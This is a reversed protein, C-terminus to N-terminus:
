DGYGPNQGLLPNLLRQQGPIPILVQHPQIGLEEVARGTRVLDYFRFNETALERRREDMVADMFAEDTAPTPNIPALGRTERLENLRALGDIRGQAEASILYMEAVRSVIVPDKGTQGSPYKNFLVQGAVNTFTIAKRKDDDSFLEQLDKTPYYDGTGKNEHAYTYFLDSINIGSEESRNEFAFIIETNAEKRSIKEFDDLEYKGILSEALEVAETKKGRSLKVRAMLAVAADYSVYYYSKSTGLQRMALELEEEIFNWVQEAPDRPVNEQTNERLIPMDGWRTVMCYYLYARFYHSEGLALTAESSGPYKEAAKILNNIQYLIYFYGAWSTNQTGNLPSLMSIILDKATGSNGRINGGLIDFMIYSRAGPGGSQFGSYVGMRMAPLDAETVAEPPISYRSYRDLDGACSFCTTALVVLTFHFLIKKM